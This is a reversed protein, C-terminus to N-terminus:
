SKWLFHNKFYPLCLQSFMQAISLHRLVISKSWLWRVLPGPTQVNGRYWSYGLLEEAASLSCSVSYWVFDQWSSCWQLFVTWLFGMRSRLLATLANRDVSTHTHRTHRTHRRSDYTHDVLEVTRWSQKRRVNYFTIPIKFIYPGVNVVSVCVCLYLCSVSM